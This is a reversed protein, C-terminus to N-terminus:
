LRWGKGSGPVLYQYGRSKFIYPKECLPDRLWFWCHPQGLRGWCCSAASYPFSISRACFKALSHLTAAVARLRAHSVRRQTRSSLAGTPCAFMPNLLVSLWFNKESLQSSLLFHQAYLGHPNKVEQHKIDSFCKSSQLCTQAELSKMQFHGAVGPPLQLTCTLIVADETFVVPNGPIINSHMARKPLPLIYKTESLATLLSETNHLKYPLLSYDLWCGAEFQIIQPHGHPETWYIWIAHSVTVNFFKALRFWM